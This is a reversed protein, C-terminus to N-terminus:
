KHLSIVIISLETTWSKEFFICLLDLRPEIGLNFTERERKIM